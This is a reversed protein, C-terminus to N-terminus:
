DRKRAPRTLTKPKVNGKTLADHRDQVFAPYGKAVSEFMAKVGHHYGAELAELVNEVVEAPFERGCAFHGGSDKHPFVFDNERFHLTPNTLLWIGCHLCSHVTEPHRPPTSRGM